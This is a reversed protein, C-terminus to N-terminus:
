PTSAAKPKLFGRYVQQMERYDSIDMKRLAQPSTECLNAFLRLEKDGVSGGLNDNDVQDGVTPRRMTFEKIEVKDHTIPFGLKIREM